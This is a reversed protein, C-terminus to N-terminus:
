AKLQKNFGLESMINKLYNFVIKRADCFYYKGNIGGIRHMTCGNNCSRQWKCSICDQPLENIKRIYNLRAEGNLVELLTQNSLDGLLLEPRGSSRDCPFVRGDPEVCFYNGCLGSYTCNRAKKGFVAAVSNEIVRIALKSNNYELWLDIQKILFAALQENTFNQNLMKKNEGCVDLYANIGWSKVGVINTFFDFIEEIELLSDATLTQIVGPYIGHKHLIKIGRMVHDFSGTGTIKKRFRNHSRKNGDLSVGIRFDNKKFFEAWEDTILTANTQVSNKILRNKENLQSQIEVIKRFFSIGALLPEGGHWIFRIPGNVLQMYESLFKELLKYSMVTRTIQDTENYYCYDCRLNCSNGTIKIIPISNTIVTKQM